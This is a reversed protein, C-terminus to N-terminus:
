KVQRRRMLAMAALGVIFGGIAAAAYGLAENEEHQEVAMPKAVRVAAPAIGEPAARTTTAIEPLGEERSVPFVEEGKEMEIVKGNMVAATIVGKSAEFNAIGLGLQLSYDVSIPHAPDGADFADGSKINRFWRM